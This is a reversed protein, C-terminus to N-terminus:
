LFSIFRSADATIKLYLPTGILKKGDQGLLIFVTELQLPIAKQFFRINGSHLFFRGDPENGESFFRLSCDLLLKRSSVRTQITIVEDSKINYRDELPKVVKFEGAHHYYLTDLKKSAISTSLDPIPNDRAIALLIQRLKEVYHIKVQKERQITGKRGYTIGGKFLNLINTVSLGAEANIGIDQETVQQEKWEDVANPSISQFLQDVKSRSIYCFYEMGAEDGFIINIIGSELFHGKGPLLVM